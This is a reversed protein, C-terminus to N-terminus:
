PVAPPADAAAGPWSLTVLRRMAPGPMADLEAAVEPEREPPLCLQRTVLAIRQQPPLTEAEARAWRDVTLARVGQEYLVAVLDDATPGIPRSLGHFHLWLPNMWSMPHLPPVEVVVQTRAAATLAALFPVADAVNFLVHHCVVVDAVAVDAAADPWTGVVAEVAVPPGAPDLAAAARETFASLMQPESDVATVASVWGILPLSAAGAGAGVDLVTGPRGLSARADELAAVAREFSAGSPAAIQADARAAFRAVSHGWPSRSAGALIQDPVKWSQLQRAWRLAATGTM